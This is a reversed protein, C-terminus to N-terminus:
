YREVLIHKYIGPRGQRPRFLTHSFKTRVIPWSFTGGLGVGRKGQVLLMLHFAALMQRAICLVFAWTFLYQMLDSLHEQIARLFQTGETWTHWSQLSTCYGFWCLIAALVLRWAKTFLKHLAGYFLRSPPSNRCSLFIAIIAARLMIVRVVLLVQSQKM